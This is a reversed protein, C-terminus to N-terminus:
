DEDALWLKVGTARPWPGMWEAFSRSAVLEVSPRTWIPDIERLQEIVKLAHGIMVAHLWIPGLKVRYQTVTEAGTGTM